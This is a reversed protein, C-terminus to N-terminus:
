PSCPVRTRLRPHKLSVQLFDCEGRVVPGGCDAVSSLVSPTAPAFLCSHSATRIVGADPVSLVQSKLPQDGHHGISIVWNVFKDKILM